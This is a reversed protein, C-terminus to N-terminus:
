DTLDRPKIFELLVGSGTVDSWAEVDFDLVALACTPFKERMDACKEAEAKSKPARALAGACDELGPNHGLIMLTKVADPTEHIQAVIKKASALYLSKRLEVQPHKALEASLLEWTERTRQSASCLVLEPWYGRIDLAHGIKVADKRGRGTLVRASDGESNSQETKAHRLLLLRHM